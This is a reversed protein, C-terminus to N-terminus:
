RTKMIEHSSVCRREKLYKYELGIRRTSIDISVSAPTHLFTVCPYCANKGEIHSLHTIFGYGYIKRLLKVAQCMM